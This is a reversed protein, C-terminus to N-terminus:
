RLYAELGACHHVEGFDDVLLGTVGTRALVEAAGHPGALYAAKAVAEGWWAEGAVVTVAALGSWSPAGTFPDVLHHQERGARRWRRRLRTTTVVAGDQVGVMAISQPPRFPDEIAIM